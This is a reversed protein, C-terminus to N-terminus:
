NGDPKKATVLPSTPLSWNEVPDPYAPDFLPMGKKLYNAIPLNVQKM